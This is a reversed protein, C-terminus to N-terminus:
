WPGQVESGWGPFARRYKDDKAGNGSETSRSGLARIRSLCDKFRSSVLPLCCTWQEKIKRDFQLPGGSLRKVRGLLEVRAITCNDLLCDNEKVVKVEARGTKGAEEHAQANLAPRCRLTDSHPIKEYLGALCDNVEPMECHPGNMGDDSESFRWAPREPQVELFVIEPFRDACYQM